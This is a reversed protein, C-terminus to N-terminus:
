LTVTVSGIKKSVDKLAFNLTKIEEETFKAPKGNVINGNLKQYFWQRSKNFYNKAIYSVSVIPLLDNLQSKHALEEAENATERALEVMADGFKGGDIEAFKISEALIEDREKQTKANRYRLKLNNLESKM